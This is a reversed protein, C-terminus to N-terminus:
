EHKRTIRRAGNWVALSGSDIDIKRTANLSHRPISEPTFAELSYFALHMVMLVVVSSDRSTERHVKTGVDSVQTSSSTRSTARKVTPAPSHDSIAKLRHAIQFPHIHNM